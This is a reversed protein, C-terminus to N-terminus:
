MENDHEELRSDQISYEKSYISCGTIADITICCAPIGQGSTFYLNWVPILYTAANESYNLKDVDFESLPMYVLEAAFIKIDGASFPLYTLADSIGETCEELPCVRCKEKVIENIEFGGTRMMQIAVDQNIYPSSLSTLLTTGLAHELISDYEYVGTPGAMYNLTGGVPIGDIYKEALGVYRINEYEQPFYPTDSPTLKADQPFDDRSYELCMIQYKPSIEGIVADFPLQKWGPISDISTICLKDLTNQAIGFPPTYTIVEVDDPIEGREPIEKSYCSFQKGFFWEKVFLLNYDFAWGNADISALESFIGPHEEAWQRGRQFPIDVSIKYINAFGDSNDLVAFNEALLDDITGIDEKENSSIANRTGSVALLNSETSETLSSSAIPTVDLSPDSGGIDSKSNCSSTLITISILITGIRKRLVM